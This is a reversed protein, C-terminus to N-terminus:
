SVIESASASGRNILIALPLNPLRNGYSNFTQTGERSESRLIVGDDIFVSALAQAASLLGGPNNRLDLIFAKVNNGPKLIDELAKDVGDRTQEGFSNVQIYGVQDNDMLEHTVVRIQIIERVITISQETGDEHQVTMTVPTGKEGRLKRVAEEQTIGVTSQGEISKIWDGARVGVKIAPGGRIPSVVKLIGDQVEIQVGIGGFENIVNKEFEQIFKQYDDSALYRTYPDDLKEIMGRIAGNILEKSQTKEPKYFNGQIRAEIAQITKLSEGSNQSAAQQTGSLLTWAGLVSLLILLVAPGLNKMHKAM